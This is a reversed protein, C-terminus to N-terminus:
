LTAIYYLVTFTMTNDNAANGAIETVVPNYVNLATNQLVTRTTGTTAASILPSQAMIVTASSGILTNPGLSSATALSAATGSTGYYLSISQSGGVSFVNSGGYVFNAWASVVIITKGVGPAAVLVYPTGHITKIQASTLTVAAVNLQGPLAVSASTWNTGDSTLVNGSTGPVAYTETSAVWNTGDSVIM